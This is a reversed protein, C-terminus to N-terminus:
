GASFSYPTVRAHRSSSAFRSPRLMETMVLDLWITRSISTNLFIAAREERDSFIVIVVKRGRNALSSSGRAGRGSRRTAATCSSLSAPSATPTDADGSIGPMVSRSPSRSATAAATRAREARRQSFKCPLTVNDIVDLFPLLNFQQFIFGVHDARFRDRASGTKTTIDAGLVSISGTQPLLVGGILGLLTSKGSGPPGTVGIVRARGTHERVQRLLDAIGPDRDEVMRIARALARTEGALLRDALQAEPM